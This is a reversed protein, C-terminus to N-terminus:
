RRDAQNEKSAQAHVEEKNEYINGRIQMLRAMGAKGMQIHKDFMVGWAGDETLWKVEYLHNDGPFALLDGQYVEVDDISTQGTFLLLEIEDLHCFRGHGPPVTTMRFEDFQLEQGKDEPAVGAVFAGRGITYVEVTGMVKETKHWARMKPPMM